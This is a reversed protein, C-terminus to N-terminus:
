QFKTNINVNNIIKFFINYNFVELEMILYFENATDYEALLKVINPHNVKRLIDVENKILQVHGKWKHKDIIKM